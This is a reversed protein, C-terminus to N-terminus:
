RDTYTKIARIKRGEFSFIDVFSTITKGETDLLQGQAAVNGTASEYVAEIPHTTETMPREQQMFTVFESKGELTMDPRNHVFEPHLLKSLREYHKTDLSDYYASIRETQWDDSM